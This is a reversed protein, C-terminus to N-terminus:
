KPNMRLDGFVGEFVARRFGLPLEALRPSPMTRVESTEDDKVEYSIPIMTEGDNETLSWSTVVRAILTNLQSTFELMEGFHSLDSTITAPTIAARKGKTPLGKVKTSRQVIEAIEALSKETVLGPAYEVDTDFGNYTVTVHAHNSTIEALTPM